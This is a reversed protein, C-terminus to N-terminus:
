RWKAAFAELEGNAAGAHADVERVAQKRAVSEVAEVTLPRHLYFGQCFDCGLERLRDLQEADEVGEAITQLHLIAGLDIIAATLASTEADRNIDNIFSRDIKLVDIPFQRIYNLSSYGTGFDDVALRVGLARLEHLRLVALDVDEMMVSETLELTLSSPPIGTSELVEQVDSLMEPRQLQRASLNVAMTLPPERPCAAQLVAAQQCAERLVFTGLSVILGSQEAAPIFELPSVTGRQPHNWRVLAEVGSVEGTSIEVIPQYVLFFEDRELAHQLDTKLQLRLLVTEHMAAEFVQYRNKGREKALYMATDANRMLHEADPARRGDSDLVVGISARVSLEKGELSFPAGLALKIREAVEAAELEDRVDGLLIAFEDGGLRAASDAARICSSLRRATERLLEDGAAHGHSDNVTKFDDIDLFLVALQQEKRGNGDLAHEVRNLFLARNPLGTLTDHFAQHSLQREFAKRESVDRANLVIGGVSPDAVLNSALAELDRSSGDAHAVRFEISRPRSAPEAQVGKLVATLDSRDDQHVLDVLQAGTISQVSRGLVREVSPSVYSVTTDPALISVVDSANRVLSAFRQESGRRANEETLAQSELAQAVDLALGTLAHQVARPVAREGFVALAGRLRHRVLFPSLTVVRPANHRAGLREIEIPVSQRSELRARVPKPLRAVVIPSLEALTGVTNTAAIPLLEEGGEDIVYLCIERDPGAISAAATLAADQIAERSTATVLAEAAVRLAGERGRALDQQRVMDAMRMVVLSFLVISVPTIVQLELPQHFVLRVLELGPALLTAGALLLLRRGTLRLQPEPAPESLSKMSPHLAAAGLLVYFLIWGGDLLGGTEYGGHLLLWGYVADTALLAVFGLAGLRFAVGRHGAGVALRVGVGLVLLDMLPYATSILKTTLGLTEDHAYPAMLYIWSLSGIGIGIILSDILSARDRWQSRQNILVLLGAILCPYVGLYFPDAISPFPLEGGFFRTYNYALVDGVVFLSQGAAFLYWPLRRSPRNRRAGVVIAVAASAGIANFVPGANLWLPGVLYALAVGAVGLPYIIWLPLKM